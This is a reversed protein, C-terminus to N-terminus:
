PFFPLLASNVGLLGVYSPLILIFTERNWAFAMVKSLKWYSSFDDEVVVVRTVWCCFMDEWFWLSLWGPELLSLSGGCTRTGSSMFHSMYWPRKDFSALLQPGPNMRPSRWARRSLKTQEEYELRRTKQSCLVGSVMSM